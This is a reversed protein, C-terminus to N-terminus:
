TSIATYCIIGLNLQKGCYTNILLKQPDPSRFRPRTPQPEPVGVLTCDAKQSTSYDDSPKAPAPPGGELVVRVHSIAPPRGQWTLRDMSSSSHGYLMAAPQKWLPQDSLAFLSSVVTARLVEDRFGHIVETEENM